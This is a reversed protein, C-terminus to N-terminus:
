NNVSFGGTRIYIEIKRGRAVKRQGQSTSQELVSLGTSECTLLGRKQDLSVRDATARFGDANVVVQGESVSM